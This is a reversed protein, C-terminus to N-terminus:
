KKNDLSATTKIKLNKKFLKKSHGIIKLDMRLLIYIIGFMLSLFSIYFSLVLKPNHYEFTILHKGNPVIISMFNLDSTYIKTPKGDIKAEWGTYMKQHLTLLCSDKTLSSVQFSNANYAKLFATDNKSHTLHQNNLFLYDDKQFHLQKKDLLKTESLKSLQHISVVTDSLMILPRQKITQFLLPYNAELKEYSSFSFSNFGEASIQKQFCNQNQWFPKGIGPLHGAEDITKTTQPPFGSPYRAVNAAAEKAKIDHSYITYPAVLLTSIILDVAILLLLAKSCKIPDKVKWIIVLFLALLLIQIIAHVSFNQALSAKQDNTFISSKVYNILGLYDNIRFILIVITFLAILAIGGIFLDKKQWQKNKSKEQIFYIGTLIAGIIFFLRFVSPFRFVNMMPVYDFLFQRVPLFAGVSASLAFLGFWFLIRIEFPKKKIIGFVFFLFIFLSFYANRMSLDTQWDVNSSTTALPAFFSVFSKPSFPSFQAQELGFNGLRSLYPGVQYVSVLMVLSFLITYIVVQAHGWTLQFWANFNKNKIFEFSYAIYFVLILYFLIITVAPYGGTVMFFLFIATKLANLHNYDRTLKIYYALVYPLWCGSIIYSLHQANGVFFGSLMFGIAAIIAFHKEIGLIKALFLMGIGAFLLHFWYEFGIWYISYGVTSGILWVMPYWAGSSPDAHIPYGLDQYPNWLPLQGNQLCEGIYFRWPYYCDIADWKVPFIYFVVPYLALLSVALLILFPYYKKILM